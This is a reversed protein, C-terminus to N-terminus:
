HNGRTLFKICRSLVTFKLQDGRDKIYQPKLFHLDVKVTQDDFHLSHIKQTNNHHANQEVYLDYRKKEQNYTQYGITNKPTERQMKPAIPM